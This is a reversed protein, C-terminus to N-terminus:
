KWLRPPCLIIAFLHVTFFMTQTIISCKNTWLPFYYIPIYLKKRESKKKQVFPLNSFFFLLILPLYFFEHELFQCYKQTFVSKIGFLIHVHFAWYGSFGCFGCLSCFGYLFWVFCLYFSFLVWICGCVCLCVSVFRVCLFCVSFM